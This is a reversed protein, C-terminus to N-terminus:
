QDIGASTQREGPHRDVYESQKETLDGFYRDSLIESFGIIANLPTRFEHSMGALFDSKARNAAEAREKEQLQEERSRRLNGIM